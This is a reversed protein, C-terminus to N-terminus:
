RRRRRARRPGRRWYRDDFDLLYLAYLAVTGFEGQAFNFVGSSKYILVLGLAVLGYASGTIVGIVLSQRRAPRSSCSSSRSPSSSRRGAPRARERSCDGDDARGRRVPRRDRVAEVDCDAELLHAGTGGFHDDVTYQVPPYIGNDFEPTTVLTNM